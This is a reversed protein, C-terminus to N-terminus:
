LLICIFTCDYMDIYERDCSRTLLVINVRKTNSPEHSDLQSRVCHLITVGHIGHVHLLGIRATETLQASSFCLLAFLATMPEVRDSMNGHWSVSGGNNTRLTM